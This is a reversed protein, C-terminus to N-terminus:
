ACTSMYFIGSASPMLATSRTSVKVPCAVIHIATNASM